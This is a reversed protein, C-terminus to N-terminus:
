NRRCRRRGEGQSPDDCRWRLLHQNVMRHAWTPKWNWRSCGSECVPEIAALRRMLRESWTGFPVRDGDFLRWSPMSGEWTRESTLVEFPLFDQLEDIM